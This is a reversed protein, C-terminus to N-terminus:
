ALKNYRKSRKRAIPSIKYSFAICCLKKVKEANDLKKKLHHIAECLERRSLSSMGDSEDGSRRSCCVHYM